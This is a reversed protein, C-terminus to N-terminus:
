WLKPNLDVGWYKIGAIRLQMEKASSGDGCGVELVSAGSPIRKCMELQAGHIEKEWNANCGKVWDNHYEPNIYYEALRQSLKLLPERNDPNLSALYTEILSRKLPSVCM